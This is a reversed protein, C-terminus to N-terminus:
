PKIEEVLFPTSVIGRSMKRVWFRVMPTTEGEL